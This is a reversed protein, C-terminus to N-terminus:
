LNTQNGVEIRWDIVKCLASRIGRWTNQVGSAVGRTERPMLLDM